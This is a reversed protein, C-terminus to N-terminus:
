IARAAVVERAPFRRRPEIMRLCLKREGAPMRLDSAELTMGLHIPRLWVDLVHANLEIGANGAMDVRVAPCKRVGALGAM